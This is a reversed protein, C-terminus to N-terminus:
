RHSEAANREAAWEISERILGVVFKSECEDRPGYVMIESGHDAYRRPEAWGRDCLEAAREAPLCLHISADDMGHLHAPVIPNRQPALSTEPLVFTRPVLRGGLAPTSRESLQSHPGETSTM